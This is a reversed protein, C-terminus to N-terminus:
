LLAKGNLQFIVSVEIGDVTPAQWWEQDGITIQGCVDGLTVDGTVVAEVVAFAAAAKDRARRPAQNNTSGDHSSVLMQISWSESDRPRIGQPAQRSTTASPRDETAWGVIITVPRYDGSLLPGDLVLAVSLDPHDALTSALRDIVAPVRTPRM